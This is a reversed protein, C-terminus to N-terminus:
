RTYEFNRVMNVEMIKRTMKPDPSGIGANNILIDFSGFIKEIEAFVDTL